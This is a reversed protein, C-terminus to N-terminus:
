LLFHQLLTFHHLLIKVMFLIYDNSHGVRSILAAIRGILKRDWGM